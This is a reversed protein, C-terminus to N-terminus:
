LHRRKLFVAFAGCLVVAPLAFVLATLWKQSTATDITLATDNYVKYSVDLIMTENTMQAVISKILEANAYTNQYTGLFMDSAFYSSGGVVLYNRISEGREADFKTKSGAVLLPIMGTAYNKDNSVPVSATAYSSLIVGTSHTVDTVPILEIPATYYSVTKQPNEASSINQHFKGFIDEDEGEIVPNDAYKAIVAFKDMSNISNKDDVVALNHLVNIGWANCLEDLNTLEPTEPDLFIMVNGGNALFKSLKTIESNGETESEIGTLDTQPDNIVILEADSPIESQSLDILSVEFGSDQLLAKFQSPITELHNSTFLAKPMTDKTVRILASTFRYEGNFAYYSYTGDDNQSYVFCESMNFAVFRKTSEVIVSTTSLNYDKRYKAVAGPNKLMDIYEVTINDYKEEYELALTKVSKAHEDNDLEDLPTFFIFKIEEDGMDELLQVSADSIEYLQEETLDVFLNFKETLATVVYNAVLVLAIFVAALIISASGYKLVKENTKVTKNTNNEM